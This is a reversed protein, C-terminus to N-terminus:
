EASLEGREYRAILARAAEADEERVRLTVNNNVPLLGAGGQLHEGHIECAIGEAQLAGHLLYAEITNEPTYIELM